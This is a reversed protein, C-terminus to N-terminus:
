FEHIVYNGKNFFKSYFYLSDMEFYYVLGGFQESYKDTQNLYTLSSDTHSAFELKYGYVSLQEDGVLGIPFSTDGYNLASDVGSYHKRAQHTWVRDGALKRTHHAIDPKEPEQRCGGALCFATILCAISSLKK